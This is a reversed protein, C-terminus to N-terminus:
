SKTVTCGFSKDSFSLHFHELANKFHDDIFSGSHIACFYLNIQVANLVHHYQKLTRILLEAFSEVKQLQPPHELDSNRGLLQDNEKQIHM